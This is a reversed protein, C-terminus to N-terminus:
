NKLARRSGSSAPRSSAPGPPQADATDERGDLDVPARSALGAETSPEAYGSDEAPRAGTKTSRSRVAEAGKVQCTHRALLGATNAASGVHRVGKRTDIRHAGRAPAALPM